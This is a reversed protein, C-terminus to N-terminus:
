ASMESLAGEQDDHMVQAFSADFDVASKLSDLDAANPPATTADLDIAQQRALSVVRKDAASDDDIVADAFDKVQRSRANRQALRAMSIEKLHSHHLKGLVVSTMPTDASWGLKANMVWGAVLALGWMGIRRM